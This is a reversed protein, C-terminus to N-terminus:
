ASAKNMNNYRKEAGRLVLTFGFAMKSGMYKALMGGLLYMTFTFTSTWVIKTKGEHDSFEMRGLPHHMGFPKAKTIRYEMLKNPEYAVIAEVLTAQQLTIERIAGVGNKDTEGQKLLKSGKIGPYNYYSEHDTLMEFAKGIPMDLVEEVKITYLPM